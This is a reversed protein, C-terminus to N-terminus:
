GDAAVHSLQVLGEGGVVAGHADDGGLQHLRSSVEVYVDEGVRVHQAHRSLGAVERNGHPTLGAVNVHVLAGAAALALLDARNDKRGAEVDVLFPQGLAAGGVAEVRLRHGVGEDNVLQANRGAAVGAGGALAGLAVNGQDALPAVVIGHPHDFLVIGEGADAPADAVVAAFIGAVAGQHVLRHVDAGELAEDGVLHVRLGAHHRLRALDLVVPLHGDNARPRTAQRCRLVQDPQAIRHRDELRQRHGAAHQPHAHGLVAQGRLDDLPLDGVDHVQAHVQPQVMGHLVQVIEELLAVVGHEDGHTGVLADAQGDGAGIQIAHDDVGAEQAVHAQAIRRFQALPHDHNARTVHGHVHGASGHAQAAALHVNVVAARPGLGGGTFLFDAVGALFADGEVEEGVRHLHDAVAVAAHGTHAAHAHLQALRARVPPRPRHGDGARLVQHGAVVDDEGDALPSAQGENRGVGAHFPGAVVADDHILLRQSRRPRAHEGAAVGHAARGEDDVGHGRAVLGGLGDVAVQLALRQLRGDFRLQGDDM